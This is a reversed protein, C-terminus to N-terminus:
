KLEVEIIDLRSPGTNRVARTTGAEQWFFEGTAPKM